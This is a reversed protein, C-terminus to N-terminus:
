LATTLQSASVLVLSSTDHLLIGVRIQGASLRAEGGSKLFREPWRHQAGGGRCTDSRPPARSRSQIYIYEATTQQKPRRIQFSCQCIGAIDCCHLTNCFRARNRIVQPRLNPLYYSCKGQLETSKHQWKSFTLTPRYCASWKSAKNTQKYLDDSRAEAQSLKTTGTM